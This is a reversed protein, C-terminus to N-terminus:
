AGVELDLGEGELAALHRVLSILHAVALERTTDPRLQDELLAEACLSAMQHRYLWGCVADIELESMRRPRWFGPKIVM